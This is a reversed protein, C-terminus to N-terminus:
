NGKFYFTIEDLYCNDSQADSIQGILSESIPINERFLTCSNVSEKVFNNETFVYVIKHSWMQNNKSTCNFSTFFKIDANQTLKTQNASIVFDIRLENKSNNFNIKISKFKRLDFIPIMETQVRSTSKSFLTTLNNKTTTFNFFQCNELKETQIIKHKSFNAQIQDDIVITENIFTSNITVGAHSESQAFISVLLSFFFPFFFCRVFTMITENTKM